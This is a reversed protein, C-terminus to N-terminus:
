ATQIPEVILQPPPQRPDLSAVLDPWIEAQAGEGLYCDLHGFGEYVSRRYLAPGNLNSLLEHSAATSEPVFMRNESGSIFHIPLKLRGINRLDEEDLITDRRAAVAVDKLFATLCEPVLDGMLAHTHRDVRRHLILEGFTAVHRYCAPNDCSFSRPLIRSLLSAALDGMTFRADRPRQHVMQRRPLFMDLHLKVKAKGPPTFRLHLAVQSAVFARITAPDVHGRVLALLFTPSSLCHSLVSVQPAGTRARVERLAAPWDFRAVDDLSYPRNHAELLPSTRWDLLWVDFGEQVLYEVFNCPVTDICFSLGTMATGPSLVVPGRTGGSTRHLCLPTGDLANFDIRELPPCTLARRTGFLPPFSTVRTASGALGAPATAAGIPQDDGRGEAIGPQAQSSSLGAYTDFLRGAFFMSFKRLTNLRVLLSPADTVTMTTLQRAFDFPDIRLVGEYALPGQDDTGDYIKVFLTTTDAWVDFGPDDHILKRGAFFYRHGAADALPMHYEMLRTAAQDAAETFLNFRGGSITLPEASVAPLHVTGILDAAHDAERLLRDADQAVVTVVFHCESPTGGGVPTVKGAMKETFRIGVTPTVRPTPAQQPAPRMDITRREAAALKIMARETFATITLLPNVGLSRPIISGDCVYLGDHVETGSAGSFVRCRHDVVGASADEAMRCGGLPHVTILNHDLLDTWLPNPVYTGGTAAVTKELNAAVRRFGPMQGAGEWDIRLRDDELRMTGGAGDHSMVLYTQTHNVAGHYPGRVMSELERAKEAFYDGTDTDTGLAAAAGAMVAPMFSGIGGPISGEEIVMGREVDAAGDGADRLDILGTICPGVPRRPDTAHNYSPSDEGFGIGDIPPDNNYGFALVDGNGSFGSGVQESLSLGRAKSRLLIETSGLTGAALVVIDASVIPEEGTFGERGLAQPIYRVNWGGGERPEVSRVRVGCFIEVKFAAADPLYNMQTTSKAGTNCGSVCDGCLNCAPQWVGAPNFGVSFSVNIPPRSADVAFEPAAKKMAELKNLTPWNQAADPYPLPKLMALAREYGTTLDGDDRIEPPWVPDDFVRKDAHLSVNANILSTGGLGCGVLVNIDKGAHFDFLATARGVRGTAMQVQSERVASTPSAPFEGPLREEGRELLAVRYGMRALRSASVGGGYGSGVVVVDYHDALQSLPKSIRKM